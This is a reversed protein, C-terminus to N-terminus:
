LDPIFHYNGLGLVLGLRVQEERLILRFFILRWLDTLCGELTGKRRASGGFVSSARLCKRGGDRDCKAARMQRFGDERAPSSLIKVWHSNISSGRKKIQDKILAFTVAHIDDCLPFLFPGSQQLIARTM